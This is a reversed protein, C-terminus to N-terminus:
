ADSLFADLFVVPRTEKSVIQAEMGGPIGVHDHEELKATVSGIKIEAAGSQVSVMRFREEQLSLGEANARGIGMELAGARPSATASSSILIKRDNGSGEGMRSLERELYVSRNMEMSQLPVKQLDESRKPRPEVDFFVGWGSLTASGFVFPLLHDHGSLNEFGHDVGAPIPMAYGEHVEACCDGLITDGHIPSFGLHIEVGERHRHTTMGSAPGSVFASNWSHHDGYILPVIMIGLNPVLFSAQEPMVNDKSVYIGNGGAIETMKSIFRGKITEMTPSTRAVCYSELAAIAERIKLDYYYLTFLLARFDGPVPLIALNALQNLLDLARTLAEADDGDSEHVSQVAERCAHFAGITQSRYGYSYLRALAIDEEEIHFVGRNNQYSRDAKEILQLYADSRKFTM